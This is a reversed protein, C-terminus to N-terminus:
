VLFRGLDTGEVEDIITGRIVPSLEKKWRDKVSPNKFVAYPGREHRQHSSKLFSETQEAYKLGLFTFLKRTERIPHDVLTEYQLIIFRDPFKQELDMHLRTVTKWDEFGWFEEPGTKRCRGTRWEQMPDAGQPFEEPTTLWSHIAGCPHRVLSVTKLNEFLELMRPLLNHFRTMKIALFEPDDEKWEFVPYTGNEREKTRCMFADRTQYAGQFVRKYEEKSSHEDVANKFAYSFLPSLRFRVQPSSDIIQGLWSTGSRPMGIVIILNNFM